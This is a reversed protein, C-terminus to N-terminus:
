FLRFRQSSTVMCMAVPHLIRSRIQKANRYGKSFVVFCSCYSLLNRRTQALFDNCVKLYPEMAMKIYTGLWPHAIPEKWEEWNQRCNGMAVFSSSGDTPFTQGTCTLADMTLSSTFKKTKGKGDCRIENQTISCVQAAKLKSDM